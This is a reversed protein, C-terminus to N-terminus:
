DAQEITTISRWGKTDAASAAGQAVNIEIVDSLAAITAGDGIRGTGQILGAALLYRGNPLPLGPQPYGNYHCELRVIASGQVPVGTPWQEAQDVPFPGQPTCSLVPGNRPDDKLFIFIGQSPPLLIPYAVLVGRYATGFGGHSQASMTVTLIFEQLPVVDTRNVQLEVSQAMAAPAFALVGAVISLVSVTRLSRRIGQVIM